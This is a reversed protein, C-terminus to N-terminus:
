GNHTDDTQKQQLLYKVAWQLLADPVNLRSFDQLNEGSVQYSYSFTCGNSHVNPTKRLIIEATQSEQSSGGESGSVAQTEFLWSPPSRNLGTEEEEEELTTLAEPMPENRKRKAKRCKREIAEEQVSAPLKEQAECINTAPSPNLPRSVSEPPSVSTSSSSTSAVPHGFSAPPKQYPPLFSHEGKSQKSTQSDRTKHASHQTNTLIAACETQSKDASPNLLPKHSTSEPSAYSSSSSSPPDDPPAFIDWPNSSPKADTNTLEAVMDEHLVSEEPLPSSDNTHPDIPVAPRAIRWEVDDVSTQSIETHQCAHPSDAKRDESAALFGSATGSGKDLPTQQQLADEEPMLLLKVPVRFPEEGKYRIRDVDWGTATCPDPQLPAPICSSTSPKLSVPPSRAMRLTEQVEELVSELCEHDWEGLLETLDVGGQSDQSNFDEQGLLAKWTQCIKQRVSLLSTCCPTSERVPGVSATAMEGVSLVFRCKTQELAMHFELQYGQIFVTTNLLSTFYERDEQEQLREWAASTLVGPIQVVGDSLFLLGTPGESGQAQSEPIQGVDIVDATLRGRKSVEESGYNHILGEIWPVLRNRAARSM